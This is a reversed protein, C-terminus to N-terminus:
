SERKLPSGVAHANLLQSQSSSARLREDVARDAQTQGSRVEGLMRVNGPTGVAALREAGARTGDRGVASHM